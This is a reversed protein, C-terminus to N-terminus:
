NKQLVTKLVRVYQAVISEHFYGGKSIKRYNYMNVQMIELAFNCNIRLGDSDCGPKGYKQLFPVQIDQM